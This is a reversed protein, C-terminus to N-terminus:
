IPSKGPVVKACRLLNYGECHMRHEFGQTDVQSSTLAFVFLGLADAKLRRQVVVM